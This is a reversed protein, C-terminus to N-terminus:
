QQLTVIKSSGTYQLTVTKSSGTIVGNERLPKYPKISDANPLTNPEPSPPIQSIQPEPETATPTPYQSTFNASAQQEDDGSTHSTSESEVTLTPNSDGESSDQIIKQLAAEFKQKSYSFTIKDFANGKKILQFSDIAGLNQLHKLLDIITQRADMKTKRSKDNIGLKKFVDDFTLTPTMHHMIIEIIRRIEYNKIATNLTTNNSNPVDVLVAPYTLIQKKIKAVTYTPPEREVFILTADQGNITGEIYCASLLPAVIHLPKGDNYKLNECVETMDTDYLTTMLKRVSRMIKDRQAQTPTACCSSDNVKGTIYRHIIGPTLYRNGIQWNSIFASLVDRDTEDLPEKNIVGDATYLRYASTVMKLVKKKNVKHNRKELIGRYAGEQMETHDEASLYFIVDSAKDNTEIRFKAPYIQANLKKIEEIPNDASLIDNIDVFKNNSKM